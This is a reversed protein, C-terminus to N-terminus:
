ILALNSGYEIKCIHVTYDYNYVENTDCNVLSLNKSIPFQGETLDNIAQNLIMITEAITKNIPIFLNYVENISPVILNILIKNNNM